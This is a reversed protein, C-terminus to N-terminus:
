PGETLTDMVLVFSSGALFYHDFIVKRLFEVGFIFMFRISWTTSPENLYLHLPVPLESVGEALHVLSVSYVLPLLRCSGTSTWEERM